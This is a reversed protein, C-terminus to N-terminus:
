KNKIKPMYSVVGHKGILLWLADNTQPIFITNQDNYITCVEKIKKSIIRDGNLCILPDGEELYGADYPISSLYNEGVYFKQSPTCMIDFDLPGKEKNTNFKIGILEEAKEKKISVKKFLPMRNNNFYFKSENTFGYTPIRIKKQLAYLINFTSSKRLCNSKLEFPDRHKQIVKLITGAVFGGTCQTAIPLSLFALMLSLKKV